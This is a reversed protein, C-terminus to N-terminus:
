DKIFQLILSVISLILAIGAIGTTIIYKINELRLKKRDKGLHEIFAKGKADIRVAGKHCCQPHNNIYFINGEPESIYNNNLLNFFTKNDFGLNKSLEDFTIGNPTNYLQKLAKISLEDLIDDM